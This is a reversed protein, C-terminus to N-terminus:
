NGSGAYSELFHLAARVDATDGHPARLERLYVDIDNLAWEERFLAIVDHDPRDVDGAVGLYVELAAPLGEADAGPLAVALDRERPAARVTDWDLLAIPSGAFPAPAPPLVLVNAAHPEGHSIVDQRRSLLATSGAAFDELRRTLTDATAQVLHRAAEAFPGAPEWTTDREGLASRISHYPSPQWRPLLDPVPVSHLEGLARLVQFRVEPDAFEGFRGSEGPLYDRVSLLLSDDRGTAVTISGDLCAQPGLVFPLREALSRVVTFCARLEAASESTRVRDATVFWRDLGTADSGLWHHSGMGEALYRCRSVPLGWAARTLRAVESEDLDPPPTLM